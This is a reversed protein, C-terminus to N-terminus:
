GEWDAKSDITVRVRIKMLRAVMDLDSVQVTTSEQLREVLDTQAGEKEAKKCVERYVSKARTIELILRNRDRPGGSRLREQALYEDMSSSFLFCHWFCLADGIITQRRFFQQKPEVAQQANADMSRQVHATFVEHLKTKMGEKPGPGPQAAEILFTEGDVRRTLMGLEVEVVDGEAGPALSDWEWARLEGTCVKYGVVAAVAEKNAKYLKKLKGMDDHTLAPLSDDGSMRVFGIHMLDGSEKVYDSVAEAAGTENSHTLIRTVRWGLSKHNRALLEGVLAKKSGQVLLEELSGKHLKVKSPRLAPHKEEFATFFEGWVDKGEESKQKFHPNDEAQLLGEGCMIKDFADQSAKRNAEAAQIVAIHGRLRGRRELSQVLAAWHRADEKVKFEKLIWQDGVKVSAVFLKKKDNYSLRLREADDDEATDAGIEYRFTKDLKTEM